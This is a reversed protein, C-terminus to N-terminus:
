SSKEENTLGTNAHEREGTRGPHVGCHNDWPPRRHRNQRQVRPHGMAGPDFRQLYDSLAHKFASERSDLIRTALYNMRERFLAREHKLDDREAFADEIVSADYYADHLIDALDAHDMRFWPAYRIHADYENEGGIFLAAEFTLTEMEPNQPFRMTAHISNQVAIPEDPDEIQFEVDAYPIDPTEDYLVPSYPLNAQRIALAASISVSAFNFIRGAADARSSNWRTLTTNRLRAM